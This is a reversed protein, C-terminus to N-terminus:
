HTRMQGKEGVKLLQINPISVYTLMVKIANLVENVLKVRIDKFRLNREQFTQQKSAVWVNFPILLVLLVFGTFVSVGM